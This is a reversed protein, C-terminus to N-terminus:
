GFISSFMPVSELIKAGCFTTFVNSKRYRLLINNSVNPAGQPQLEDKGLDPVLFRTNSSDDPNVQDEMRTVHALKSSDRPESFGYSGIPLSGNASNTSSSDSPDKVQASSECVRGFYCRGAEEDGYTSCNKLFSMWMISDPAWPITRMLEFADRVMGRQALTCSLCNYHEIKPAIRHHDEAMSEFCRVVEQLLAANNCAELVTTFAIDDPVLGEMLMM